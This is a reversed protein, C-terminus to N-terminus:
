TKFNSNSKSIYIKRNMNMGSGILIIRIRDPYLLVPNVASDLRGDAEDRAKITPFLTSSRSGSSSM